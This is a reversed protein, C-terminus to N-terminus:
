AHITHLLFLQVMNTCNSILLSYRETTALWFRLTYKIKPVLIVIFQDKLIRTVQTGLRM